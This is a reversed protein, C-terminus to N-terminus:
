SPLDRPPIKSSWLPYDIGALRNVALAQVVILCVAIEIACVHLPATIRANFEGRPM